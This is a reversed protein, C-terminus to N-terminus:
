KIDVIIKRTQRNLWKIKNKLKGKRIQRMMEWDKELLKKEKTQRDMKKEMRCKSVIRKLRLGGVDQPKDSMVREPRGKEHVYCM